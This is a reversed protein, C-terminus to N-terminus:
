PRAGRSKDPKPPKLSQARAFISRTDSMVMRLMAVALPAITSDREALQWLRALMVKDLDGKEFSYPAMDFALPPRDKPHVFRSPTEGAQGANRRESDHLKILDFLLSLGMGLARQDSNQGCDAFTTAASILWRTPLERAMLAGQEAWIRFFLLLADPPPDTRRSMAIVMAHLRFLESQGEFEAQLEQWKRQATYRPLDDPACTPAPVTTAHLVALDVDRAPLVDGGEHFSRQRRELFKMLKRFGGPYLTNELDIM